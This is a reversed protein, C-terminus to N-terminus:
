LAAAVARAMAHNLAHGSRRAVIRGVIPRGVLALDGILDLLKHRAPEDDFRFRNDIPGGDGIVLMESPTLHQFLGMKQMAQAEEVLCFTRAPAIEGAFEKSPSGLAISLSARQRAIPSPEGYDLHYEFHCAGDDTPTATIEGARAGDGATMVIPERIVLPRMRPDLASGNLSLTTTGVERVAEVFPLASGDGVPVEPGAVDILADTIALGALAGLLHEVTQVRCPDKGPDAAPDAVLVTRRNESVVHAVSAPILRRADEGSLDIRRFAIGHGAKAPRITVASQVGTFLTVGSFTAAAAVTRRVILESSSVVHTPPHTM